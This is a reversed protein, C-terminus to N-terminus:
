DDFTPPPPPLDFPTRTIKREKRPFFAAAKESLSIHLIVVFLLVSLLIKLVLRTSNSGFFIQEANMFILL